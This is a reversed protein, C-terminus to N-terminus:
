KQVFYVNALWACVCVCELGVHEVLQAKQKRASAVRMQTGNM